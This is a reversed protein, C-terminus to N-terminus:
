GGPTTRTPRWTSSTCTARGLIPDPVVGPGPEFSWGRAGTLWHTVSLAIAPPLGKLSRLILTRHPWPCALSVYLHYRGPAAAHGREGTPGPRGDPTM